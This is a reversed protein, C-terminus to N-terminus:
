FWEPHKLREKKYKIHNSSFMVVNQKGEYRELETKFYKPYASNQYLELSRSLPGWESEVLKIDEWTTTHDITFGNVIVKHIPRIKM